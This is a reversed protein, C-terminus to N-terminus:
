GGDTLSPRDKDSMLAPDNLGLKLVPEDDDRLAANIMVDGRVTGTQAVRGVGCVVEVRAGGAGGEVFEGFDVLGQAPHHLAPNPEDLDEMAAPVEVAVEGAVQWRLALVDVLGAGGEDLIDARVERGGGPALFGADTARDHRHAPADVGVVDALAELDEAVVAIPAHEAHLAFALGARHDFFGEGPEAM